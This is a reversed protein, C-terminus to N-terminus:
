ANESVNECSANRLECVAQFARVVARLEEPDLRLALTPSEVLDYFLV